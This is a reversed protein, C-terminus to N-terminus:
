CISMFCIRQCLPLNARAHIEKTDSLYKSVTDIADLVEDAREQLSKSIMIREGGNFLMNNERETWCGFSADIGTTTRIEVAHFIMAARLHKM